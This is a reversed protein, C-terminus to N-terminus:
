APRTEWVPNLTLYDADAKVWGEAMEGVVNGHPCVARIVWHSFGALALRHDRLVLNCGDPASLRLGRHEGLNM